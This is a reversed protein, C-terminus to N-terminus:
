ESETPPILLKPKATIRPEIANIFKTAPPPKDKKLIASPFYKKLSPMTKKTNLM